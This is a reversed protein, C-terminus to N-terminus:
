RKLTAINQSRAPPTIRWGTISGLFTSLGEAEDPTLEAM